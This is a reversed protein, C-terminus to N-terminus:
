FKEPAPQSKETKAAEAVGAKRVLVSGRDTTISIEAGKGTGGKLSSTRGDTQKQIAPGFDNMADGRAATAMLQFAANDPLALEIKGSRSRAENAALSRPM